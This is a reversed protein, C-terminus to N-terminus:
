AVPVLHLIRMPSASNTFDLVFSVEEKRVDLTLETETGDEALLYLSYGDLLEAPLTIRVRGTPQTLMGGHEFAVIMITEGNDLTGMRVLLEGGPLTRTVARATAGEVLVLRTGNSGGGCVPCLIYAMRVNGMPLAFTIQTCDNTKQYGCGRKCLATHTADGNSIWEAYWHGLEAQEAYTTYDCRSCTDYADWGIATCTPAKAAHNMLAHGLAKKEAYTSYDCRSCTDYADWGIDTCSPTQAAHNVLAHGLASKEAYTSYDCRSCTDYADWGIDTCTPAQAAHNM